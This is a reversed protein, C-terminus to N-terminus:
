LNDDAKVVAKGTNVELDFFPRLEENEAMRKHMGSSARGFLEAQGMNCELAYGYQEPQPTRLTVSGANVEVKATDNVIGSVDLSGADASLDMSDARMRRLQVSGAQVDVELNGCALEQSSISGASCELEVADYWADAPLVVEVTDGDGHNKSHNRDPHVTLKWVGDEQTSDVLIGDCGGTNLAFTEGLTLELHGAEVTFDLRQVQGAENPIQWNGSGSMSLAPDNVQLSDSATWASCNEGRDWDRDWRWSWGWLPKADSILNNRSFAEGWMGGAVTGLVCLVIGPILLGLAAMFCYKILRKM